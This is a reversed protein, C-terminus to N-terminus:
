NLALDLSRRIPDVYRNFGYEKAIKLGNKGIKEIYSNNSLWKTKKAIELETRIVAVNRTFVNNDSSKQADELDIWARNIFQKSENLDGLVCYGRAIGEKIFCKREPALATVMGALQKVIESFENEKKLNAFTIALARNALQKHYDTLGRMKIAKELQSEAKSYNKSVYFADGRLAFSVAILTKDKLENGIQSIKKTLSPVENIVTKVRCCAMIEYIREILFKSQLKLLLIRQKRFKISRIYEEIDELIIKSWYLTHQTLDKVKLEGLLKLNHDALSYFTEAKETLYKRDIGYRQFIQEYLLDNLIFRSSKPIKLIDAFIKLQSPTFLRKGNIVRSLVSADVGSYGMRVWMELALQNLTMKNSFIIKKGSRSYYKQLETTFTEKLNSCLIDSSDVNNVVKDIINNL